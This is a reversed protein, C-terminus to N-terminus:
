TAAYRGYSRGSGRQARSGARLRRRAVYPRAWGMRLDVQDFSSEEFFKRFAPLGGVLANMMNSWTSATNGKGHIHLM